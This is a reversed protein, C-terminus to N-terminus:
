DMVLDDSLMASRSALAADLASVAAAARSPRTAQPAAATTRPVYPAQRKKPAAKAVLQSVRLDSLSKRFRHFNADTLLAEDGKRDDFHVVM